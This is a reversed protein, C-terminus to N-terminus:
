LSQVFLSSIVSEVVSEGHVNHWLVLDAITWESRTAELLQVQKSLIQPPALPHSITLSITCDDGIIRRNYGIKISNIDDYHDMSPSSSETM